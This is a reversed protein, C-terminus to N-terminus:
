QTGGLKAFCHACLPAEDPLTYAYGGNSPVKYAGMAKLDRSLTPQNTVIGQLALLERIQAQDSVPATQIIDRIAERRKAVASPKTKTM